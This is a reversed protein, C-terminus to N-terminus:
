QVDVTIHIYYVLKMHKYAESFSFSNSFAVYPGPMLLWHKTTPQTHRLWLPDPPMQQRVRIEVPLWLDPNQWHHLCLETPCQWCAPSLKWWGFHFSTGLKNLISKLLMVFNRIMTEAERNVKKNYCKQTKFFDQHVQLVLIFHFTSKNWQWDNFKICM